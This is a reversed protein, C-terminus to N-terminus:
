TRWENCPIAARRKLEDLAEGRTGFKGHWDSHNDDEIVYM